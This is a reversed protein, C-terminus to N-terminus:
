IRSGPGRANTNRRKPIAVIVAAVMMLGFLLLQLWYYQIFTPFDLGLVYGVSDGGRTLWFIGLDLGIWGLLSGIAPILAPLPM